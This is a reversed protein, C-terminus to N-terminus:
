YSFDPDERMLDPELHTSVSTKPLRSGIAAEIRECCDHGATVSLNGPV